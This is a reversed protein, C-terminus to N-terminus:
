RLVIMKEARVFSGAQIRYIYVGSALGRGEFTVEYSGAVQESNQLLAIQQGIANYVALKVHSRHPLGYRITTSPNFPNPFNQELSFATPVSPLSNVASVAKRVVGIRFVQRASEGNPDTVKISVTGVGTDSLSPTGSLTRGGEGVSLWPPISEIECTLPDSDEDGASFVYKYPVGTRATQAPYSTIHPSHNLIENTLGNENFVALQGALTMWKNGGADIELDSASLSSFDLGAPTRAEWAGGDFVALGGETAAWVRGLSDLALASVFDGTLGGPSARYHSWVGNKLVTVGDSTAFWQSGNNDGLMGFINTSQYGMQQVTYSTWTGDLYKAVAGGGSFWVSGDREVGIPNPWSTLSGMASCDVFSFGSGDFHYAGDYSGIWVGGRRDQVVSRLYVAGAHAPAPDLVTWSIGDYRRLIRWDIVWIVGNDDVCLDGSSLDRSRDDIIVQRWRQGRRALVGGVTLNWVYGSRDLSIVETSSVVPSGTGVISWSSDRFHHAGSGSHWLGGEPDGSIASIYTPRDAIGPRIMETLSNGDYCYLRPRNEDGTKIGGLWINNMLDRGISEVQAPISVKSRWKGDAFSSVMGGSVGILNGSVDTCALIEGTGSGHPPNPIIRWSAQSGDFAAIQRNGWSWRNFLFVTSDLGAVLSEVTNDLAGFDKPLFPMWSEGKFIAIGSDTAAWVRNADDCCLANVNGAPLGSNMHTFVKVGSATVRTVGPEVNYPPTSSRSGLWVGGTSDSTISSIADSALGNGENFWLWREGDFTAAGADYTGFWVRGQRDTHISSLNNSPLAPASQYIYWQNKGEAVPEYKATFSGADRTNTVIHRIAGGDSWQVFKYRTGLITQEAPASLVCSFGLGVPVEAPTPVWRWGCRVPIGPPDTNVRLAYISDTWGIHAITFACLELVNSILMCNVHNPNLAVCNGNPFGSRTSFTGSQCGYFTNEAYEDVAWFIHASEHAIVASYITTSHAITSYPGGRIAHAWSQPGSPPDYVFFISYAGDTGMATKQVNNFAEVKEIASGGAAGVNGMIANIYLSEENMGRAAADYPQSCVANDHFFPALIFTVSRGALLATSSWWALERITHQYVSEQAALTWGEGGPDITHNPEVFFLSVAIRGVMRDSNGSRVVGESDYTNLSNPPVALGIRKSISRVNALYTDENVPPREQADNQLMTDQASRSMQLREEDVSLVARLLGLKVVDSKGIFCYMLTPSAVVAVDGGAKRIGNEIEMRGSEDVQDITVRILMRQNPEQSLVDVTSGWLLLLLLITSFTANMPTNGHNRIPQTCVM